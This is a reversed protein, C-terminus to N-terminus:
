QIGGSYAVVERGDLIKGCDAKVFDNYPYNVCCYAYYKTDSKMEIFPECPGYLDIYTVTVYEGNLFKTGVWTYDGIHYLCWTTWLETWISDDSCKKIGTSQQPMYHALQAKYIGGVERVIAKLTSPNIQAVICSM